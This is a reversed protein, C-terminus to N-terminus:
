KAVRFSVIKSTKQIIQMVFRIAKREIEADLGSEDSVQIDFNFPILNIRSKFYFRQSITLKPVHIKFSYENILGRFIWTKDRM